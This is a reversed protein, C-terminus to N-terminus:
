DDVSLNKLDRFSAHRRGADRRRHHQTQRQDAQPAAEMLMAATHYDEDKQAAGDATHSCSRSCRRTALPWSPCRKQAAPSVFPEDIEPTSNNKLPGRTGLRGVLRRSASFPGRQDTANGEEGM